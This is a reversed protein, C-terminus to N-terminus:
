HIGELRYGLVSGGVGVSITFEGFELAATMSLNCSYKGGVIM